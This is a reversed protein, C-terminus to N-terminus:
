KSLEKNIIAYSVKKLECYKKLLEEQNLDEPIDTKIEKVKIEEKYYEVKYQKRIKNIARHIEGVSVTDTIAKIKLDIDTEKNSQLKKLGSGKVKGGEGILNIEYMPRSDIQKWKLKNNEIIGIRKQDEIESFSVKYLSGVYNVNKFSCVPQHIHGLVYILQPDVKRNSESLHGNIYRTGKVEYHGFVYKGLALEKWAQINTLVTIDEFNYYGNTMEHSDTGKILIIEKCKRHKSLQQLFNAMMVREKITPTKDFLDGTIIAKDFSEKAIVKFLSRKAYDWAKERGQNCHPDGIILIKERLAPYKEKRKKTNKKNSRKVAM